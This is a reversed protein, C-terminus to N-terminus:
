TNHTPYHYILQNFLSKWQNMIKKTNFREINKKANKGFRKRLNEDEMMLKLKEAFIDLNKYPVMFSDSQDTVIHKPGTPADYTIVPIGCSLAELLVMPFCETVSTMAYISYHQMTEKLNASIEMFKVSKELGLDAIQKEIKKQTGLYDEGYFHLEWDPFDPHVKSFIEVLADFNKM